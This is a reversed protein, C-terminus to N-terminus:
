GGAQGKKGEELRKVLAQLVDILTQLAPAPSSSAAAQAQLADLAQLPRKNLSNMQSPSLWRALAVELMDALAPLDGGYDTTQARDVALLLLQRGLRLDILGAYGWFDIAADRELERWLPDVAAFAPDLGAAPDGIALAAPDAAADLVERLWRGDEVM